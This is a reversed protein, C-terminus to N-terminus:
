PNETSFDMLGAFSSNQVASIYLWLVGNKVFRSLAPRQKNKM